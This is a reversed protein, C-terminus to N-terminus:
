SGCCVFLFCLFQVRHREGRETKPFIKRLRNELFGILRGMMVVPHPLWAPDGILLDLVFAGIMVAARYKLM